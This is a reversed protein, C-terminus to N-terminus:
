YRRLNVPVPQDASSGDSSVSPPPGRRHGALALGGVAIIRVALDVSTRGQTTWYVDELDLLLAAEDAILATATGFSAATVPHRQHIERGRIAIAGVGTLLAIGLNDHHFARRRFENWRWGLRPREPDLTNPRPRTRLHACVVWLGGSPVPAYSDASGDFSLHDSIQPGPLGPYTIMEHEIVHSLDLLRM